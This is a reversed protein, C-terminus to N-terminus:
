KVRKSLFFVFFDFKCVNFEKNFFSRLNVFNVLLIIETTKRSSSHSSGCLYLTIIRNKLGPLVASKNFVEGMIITGLGKFYYFVFKKKM